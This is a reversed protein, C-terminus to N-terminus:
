DCILILWLGRLWSMLLLIYDPTMTNWIEYELGGPQIGTAGPSSGSKPALAPLQEHRLSM